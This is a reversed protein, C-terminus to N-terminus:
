NKIEASRSKKDINKYDKYFMIKLYNIFYLNNKDFPLNSLKKFFKIKM